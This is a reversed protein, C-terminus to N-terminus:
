RTARNRFMKGLRRYLRLLPDDPHVRRRAFPAFFIEGGRRAQSRIGNQYRLDLRGGDKRGRPLREIGSASSRRPEPRHDFRRKGDDVDAFDGRKARIWLHSEVTENGSGVIDGLFGAQPKRLSPFRDTVPQCADDDMRAGETEVRDVADVVIEAMGFSERGFATFAGPQ